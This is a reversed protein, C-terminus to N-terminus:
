DIFKYEQRLQDLERLLPPPYLQPDGAENANFHVAQTLLSTQKSADGSTQAARLFSHFIMKRQVTRWDADHVLSTIQIYAHHAEDPSGQLFLYGAEEYL